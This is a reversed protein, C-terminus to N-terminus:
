VVEKEVIVGAINLLSILGDEQKGVGSLYAAKEDNTNGNPKDINEEDLTVVERVEDVIIGVSSQSELKIIIIRTTNSYEDAKLGFKLRLSMVPVIEGRLNIVGLFYPQTSPVRTPKQMRVINDVFGIDIGYQEDDLKVVIYQKDMSMTREDM